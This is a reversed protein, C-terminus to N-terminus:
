FVPDKSQCPNGRMECNESRENRLIWTKKASCFINGFGADKFFGSVEDCTWFTAFRLFRGKIPEHLYKQFLEGGAEIFGAM